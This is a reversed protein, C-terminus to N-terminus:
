STYRNAKEAYMAADANKVLEEWTTGDSPFIATGISAGVSVDDGKTLRIPQAFAAQLRSAVTAAASESAIDAQLVIFEDGGMRAVVDHDRVVKNLRRVVECLVEDGAEHGYQDNIPKFRNLDIYHLALGGSSRRARAVAKTVHEEFLTRNAAGTLADYFAFRQLERDRADRVLAGSIISALLDVFDIDSQDFTVPRVDKDMFLLSGYPQGHTSIRTGIYSKWPLGRAALESGYPEVRLDDIAIARASEQLRQGISQTLQMRFGIPLVDTPGFRHEVELTDGDVRSVFAYGMHLARAGIELIESLQAQASQATSAVRYLLQMREDKESVARRLAHEATVDKFRLYFGEVVDHVRISSADIEVALKRGNRCLLRGELTSPQSAALAAIREFIDERFEPPVLILASQGILEETRYGSLLEMAVNVHSIIGDRVEIIAHSSREFLSRFREASQLLGEEAQRQETMDRAAGVVGVVRGGVIVPSLNAIVPVRAGSADLFDTESETSHGSLAQAFHRAAVVRADPAIHVEYHKGVVEQGYGLRELAAQNARVITGNPLYVAMLESTHDFMAAFRQRREDSKELLRQMIQDRRRIVYVIVFAVTLLILGSSLFALSRFIPAYKGLPDQFKLELVVGQAVVLVAILATAVLGIIRLRRVRGDLIM